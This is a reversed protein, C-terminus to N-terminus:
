SSPPFISHFAGILAPALLLPILESYLRTESWVGVVSMAALFPWVVGSARRLFQPQARRTAAGVAWLAVLTAIAAGLAFSIPATFLRALDSLNDAFHWEIPRGANSAFSWSLFARLAIWIGIQSAVLLAFQRRPVADWLTLVFALTLFASTERNLTALAFVALYLAWRRQVMLLLGLAAFFAAPVDYPYFWKHSYFAFLPWALALSLWWSARPACFQRLYVRFVGFFAVSFGMLLLQYCRVLDLPTFQAGWHALLPMLIRLQYPRNGRFQALLRPDAENMVFTHQLYYLSFALALVVGILM